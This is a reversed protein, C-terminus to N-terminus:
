WLQVLKCHSQIFAKSNGKWAIGASASSRLSAVKLFVRVLVVLFHFVCCCSSSNLIVSLGCQPPMRQPYSRFSINLHKLFIFALISLCWHPVTIGKTISEAKGSCSQLPLRIRHPTHCACLPKLTVLGEM